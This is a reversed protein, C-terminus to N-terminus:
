PWPLLDLERHWMVREARDEDAYQRNLREHERMRREMMQGIETDSMETCDTWGPAEDAIESVDFWDSMSGCPSVMFRQDNLKALTM